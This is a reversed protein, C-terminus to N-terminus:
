RRPGGSDRAARAADPPQRNRGDFSRHRVPRRRQGRRYPSLDRRRRARSASVQRRHAEIDGRAIDFPADIGPIEIRGVLDAHRDVFAKVADGAAPRGISDAVDITYFDSSSVFGDVTELRIHDADVFYPKNWGLEKVAADAAARVSPPQSGVTTHERHSKNWVPVVEAGQEAALRCTRLQAKAQHAFRDGVGFSYKPLTLM